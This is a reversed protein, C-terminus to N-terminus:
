DIAFGGNSLDRDMEPDPPDVMSLTIDGTDTDREWTITTQHVRVRMSGPQPEMYILRDPEDGDFCYAFGTRTHLRDVWVVVTAKLKSDYM